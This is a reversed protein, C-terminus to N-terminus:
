TLLPEAPLMAFTLIILPTFTLNFFPAGVSIAEGDIAEHILPYLTGLLMVATTTSLLINNLMIANERNIPRFQDNRNLNPTHLNFLLFNTGAAMAIMILLLINHTPNIAFAHVSTLMNSHILFADLM